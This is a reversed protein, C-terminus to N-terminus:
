KSIATYYEPTLSHITEGGGELRQRAKDLLSASAGTAPDLEVARSLDGIALEIQARARPTELLGSEAYALRAKALAQWNQTLEPNAAAENQSDGINRSYTAHLKAIVTAALVRVSTDPDRLAFKIVASLGTEYKRYVIRLAELKESRSGEAMVDMIPCIRSAGDLRVRRDLLATHAREVREIESRDITVHDNGCDLPIRSPIMATPFTIATAVLAGFPGAFASWAVIQLAASDRENVSLSGRLQCVLWSALASCGLIHIGAYAAFQINGDLLAFLLGIQWGLVVVVFGFLWSTLGILRKVQGLVRVSDGGNAQLQAVAARAAARM